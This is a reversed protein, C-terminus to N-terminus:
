LVMQVRGTAMLDVHLLELQQPGTAEIVVTLACFRGGRSFRVSVSSEAVTGAHREFVQLVVAQFDEVNRGLVKIPYACPFIIRPPEQQDTVEILGM